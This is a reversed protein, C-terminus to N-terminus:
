LFSNVKFPFNNIYVCHLCQGFKPIFRKIFPMPWFCVLVHFLRRHRNTIKKFSHDNATIEKERWKLKMRCGLRGTFYNLARPSIFYFHLHLRQQIKTKWEWRKLYHINNISVGEGRRAIKSILSIIRRM